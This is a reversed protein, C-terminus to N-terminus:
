KNCSQIKLSLMEFVGCMGSHILWQIIRSSYLVQRQNFYIWHFWQLIMLSSSPIHSWLLGDIIENDAKTFYPVYHNSSYLERAPTFIM